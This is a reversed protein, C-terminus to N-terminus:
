LELRAAFGNMRTLQAARGLGDDLGLEEAVLLSGERAGLLLALATELQGVAARDEEVFDTIEGGRGLHAQQAHQL